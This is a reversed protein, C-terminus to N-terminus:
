KNIKCKYIYSGLYVGVVPLSCVIALYIGEAFPKERYWYYTVAFGVLASMIGGWVMGINKKIM